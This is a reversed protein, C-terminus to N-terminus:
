IPFKKLKTLQLLVNVAFAPNDFLYRKWLRKPEQSLRFVWELGSRQMWHPAQKVSGSHFNFAAGVGIMVPAKIKGLHEAMWLDQKPSSLGVWLIHPRAKNIKQIIKQDEEATMQRFPPSYTGAVKLGPFKRQLHDALKEPVGPMGGYFYHSYGKRAAMECTLLMLDPGYVRKAELGKLRGLWVLPMGDPTVLGARNV